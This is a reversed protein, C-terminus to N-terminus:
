QHAPFGVEVDAVIPLHDSANTAVTYARRAKVGRGLWIYDIRMVPLRAPFTFGTGAGAQAFADTLRAKLHRHFGGRPPNNFDGALVFPRGSRRSQDLAKDVVPLQKQRTQATQEVLTATEILRRLSRPKRGGYRSNQAATSIHAVLVDLPGGPTQCTVALVRRHSPKPHPYRRQAVIPYRSLVTVDGARAWHWDPFRAILEPTRDQPVDRGGLTEQLCVIDPKQARIEDAIKATGARSLLINWTMVRVRLRLSDPNAPMLRVWPVQVGLLLVGFVLLTAGNLLIPWRKKAFISWILLGLTPLLFPHQPLYLGFTTFATREAVFNILLWWLIILGLNLWSLRPLRSKPKPARM